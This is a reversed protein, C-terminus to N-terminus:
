AAAPITAFASDPSESVPPQPAELGQVHINDAAEKSRKKAEAVATVLANSRVTEGPPVPIVGFSLSVLPFFREVGFRDEATIGGALREPEPYLQAIAQAAERVIRRLRAQWDPSQLILVFDDGGVHGVFDHLPDIHERITSAALLIVEDGKWFGYRDNFPKFHNLDAYALVFGVQSDLMRELHANIPVNGPLLTLPNAHRAAEIRNETVQRVLQHASCLGLYRGNQTVVIGDTLYRQDAETLVTALEDFSADVDKIVPNRNSLPLVSRNGYIDLRYPQAMQNMFTAMSLIGVPHQVEDVLVVSTQNACVSFFQVVDRARATHPLSPRMDVLNRLVGTLNTKRGPYAPVMLRGDDFAARAPPSVDLVPEALPRALFFGQAQEMGMARVMRLEDATEVGEALLVTGLVDAMQRLGRLLEQRSVDHPLDHIFCRDIKIKEPKYELWANLNSHGVGFDDLAISVGARRCTGLFADVGDHNLPDCETLEVVLGRHGLVQADREILRQLRALTEPRALTDSNVNVHLRQGSRQTLRSFSEIASEVCALDLETHLDLERARQFLAAPNAFGTAPDPRVLAEQSVVKLTKLDVIPQFHFHFQRQRILDWLTAEELPTPDTM